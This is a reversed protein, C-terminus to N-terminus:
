QRDYQDDNMLSQHDNIFSSGNVAIKNSQNIKILINMYRVMVHLFFLKVM